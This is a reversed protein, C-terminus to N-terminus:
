PNGQPPTLEAATSPKVLSLVEPLSRVQFPAAMQFMEGDLAVRYSKHRNHSRTHITLQDVCFSNLSKEQELTRTIGRFLVRLMEFRTVATMTVAALLDRKMCDAIQLSLTRLQLSNNGIFIMPTRICEKKGAGELEVDLLRHGKLLTMATSLLAVIRHRGWRKTRAKRDYIVKAYLGLSANLVFIEDNIKGVRVKQTSGTMALKLAAETDEPINHTRAFLNFTGCPIVAFRLDKGILHRAVTRVTGDGGAAAITGGDAKVAELAEQVKVDIQDPASIEHLIVKANLESAVKDALEKLAGGKGQGSKSNAILHLPGQAEAMCASQKSFAFM